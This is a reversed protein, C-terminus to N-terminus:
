AHLTCGFDEETEVSDVTGGDWYTILNIEMKQFDPLKDCLGTNFLEIGEDPKYFTNQEWHKCTLCRPMVFSIDADKSNVPSKSEEPLETKMKM